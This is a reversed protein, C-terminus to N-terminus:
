MMKTIFSKVSLLWAIHILIFFFACQRWEIIENTFTTGVSISQVFAHFYCRKNLCATATTLNNLWTWSKHGWPCYGAQSRHGHSKGPLFVPTAQWKRRCVFVLFYGSLRTSCIIHMCAIDSWNHRNAISYVLGDPEETWTIRWALISSHTAM